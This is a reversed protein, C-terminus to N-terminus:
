IEAIIERDHLILECGFLNQLHNGFLLAGVTLKTHRRISLVIFKMDPTRTQTPNPDPSALVKDLGLALRETVPSAFLTPVEAAFITEHFDDSSRFIFLKYTM